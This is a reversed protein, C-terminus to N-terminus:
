LHAVPPIPAVRPEARPTVTGSTPEPSKNPKEREVTIVLPVSDPAVFDTGPFFEHHVHFGDQADDPMDFFSALRLLGEGSGSLVLEDSSASVRDKADKRSLRLRPLLDAYPKPDFAAECAIVEEAGGTALRKLRDAVGRLEAPAGAVEYEGLYHRIRIMKRQGVDSILWAAHIVVSNREGSFRDFL